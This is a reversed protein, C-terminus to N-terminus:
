QPGDPLEVPDDEDVVHHPDLRDDHVDQIDTIEERRTQFPLTRCPEDDDDETDNVENSCDWDDYDLHIMNWIMKMIM